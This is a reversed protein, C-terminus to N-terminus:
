AATRHHEAFKGRLMDAVLERFEAAEEATDFMGLHRDRGQHSIKAQWKSGRAYVGRQGSSGVARKYNWKNETSTAARLNDKRNDDRTGNVHDIEQTPWENYYLAWAVHHAQRLKGDVSFRRYGKANLGGPEQGAARQYGDVRCRIVGTAPDVVFLEQLREPTPKM